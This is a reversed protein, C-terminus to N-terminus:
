RKQPAVTPQKSVANAEAFRRRMYEITWGLYLALPVLFAIWAVILAQM